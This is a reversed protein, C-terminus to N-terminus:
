NINSSNNANRSKSSVTNNTTFNVMNRRLGIMTIFENYFISNMLLNFFFLTANDIIYITVCVTFVLQSQDASLPMYDLLFYAIILSFKLITCKINLGISNIAFKRDRVSLTRSSTSSVFNSNTIRKRSRYVAMLLKVNLINNIVINILILNALVMWAQRIAADPPLVCTKSITTTNNNDTVNKTILEYYLPQQINTLCSYLVVLFM